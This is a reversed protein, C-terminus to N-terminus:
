PVIRVHGLRDAREVVHAEGVVAENELTEDRPPLLHCANFADRSQRRQLNESREVAVKTGTKSDADILQHGASVLRHSDDTRVLPALVDARVKLHNVLGEPKPLDRKAVDCRPDLRPEEFGEGHDERLVLGEPVARSQDDGLAEDVLQLLERHCRGLDCREHIGGVDVRDQIPVQHCEDVAALTGAVHQLPIAHLGIADEAELSLSDVFDGVICSRSGYESVGTEAGQFRALLLRRLPPQQGRARLHAPNKRKILSPVRFHKQFITIM